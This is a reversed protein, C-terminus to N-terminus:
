LELIKKLTYDPHKKHFEAFKRADPTDFFSKGLSKNVVYMVKGIHSDRVKQPAREFNELPYISILYFLLCDPVINERTMTEMQTPLYYKRYIPYDAGLYKDLCIGIKGDGIIISQGLAGIQTYIKPLPLGPIGERLVAFASNMEDTIDDMMAYQKGAESIINQLVPDQYFKLLRENIDEQDVNGIELMNEILTRTEMPYQTNMQQLASFDGTTLFRSQIRDYREIVLEEETGTEPWLNLQCGILSTLLFAFAFINAAIRM